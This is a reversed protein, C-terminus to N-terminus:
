TCILTMHRNGTIGLLATLLIKGGTTTMSGVMQRMKCVLLELEILGKHKRCGEEGEEDEEQLESAVELVVEEQQQM